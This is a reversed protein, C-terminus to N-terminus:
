LLFTDGLRLFGRVAVIRLNRLPLTEGMLPDESVGGDEDGLLTEPLGGGQVELVDSAGDEEEEELLWLESGGRTALLSLHLQVGEVGEKARLLANLSELLSMEEEEELPRLDLTPSVLALLM